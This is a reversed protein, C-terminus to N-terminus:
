FLATKRGIMMMMKFDVKENIPSEDINQNRTCVLVEKPAPKINACIAITFSEM